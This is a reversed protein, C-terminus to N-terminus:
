PTLEVLDSRSYDEKGQFKIKRVVALHEKAEESRRDEYSGYYLAIYTKDNRAIRKWFAKLYGAQALSKIRRDANLEAAVRAQSSGGEWEMLKISWPKGSPPPTPDSASAVEPARESTPIPVAARSRGVRLGIAYALFVIGLAVLGVFIASNYSLRLIRDGPGSTAPPPQIPRQIRPPPTETAAVIPTPKPTPRPEAVVTTRPSVEPPTELPSSASKLIEYLNPSDKSRM